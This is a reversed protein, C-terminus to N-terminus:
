LGTAMSLAAIIVGLAVLVVGVNGKISSIYPINEIEIEIKDEIELYYLILGGLFIFLGFILLIM